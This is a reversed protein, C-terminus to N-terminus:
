RLKVSFMDGILKQSADFCYILTIHSNSWKVICSILFFLLPGKSTNKPFPNRFIDLLNVLSFGMGFHSKLLNAFCFLQLFQRLFVIYSPVVYQEPSIFAKCIRNNQNQKYFFFMWFQTTYADFKMKSWMWLVRDFFHASSGQFNSSVMLFRSSDSVHSSNLYQTIKAVMQFFENWIKCSNLCSKLRTQFNSSKIWFKTSNVESNSSDIKCYECRFIKSM